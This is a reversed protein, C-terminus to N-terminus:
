FVEKLYNTIIIEKVKERNKRKSMQTVGYSYKYNNVEYKNFGKYLNLIFDNEYHTFLFKGKIGKLINALKYHDEKTFMERYYREAEVYPPDIFFLTNPSDYKKICEEFDLNEICVNQLRDRFELFRKYFSFIHGARRNSTKSYGFSGIKSAFGNTILYIFGYAREVNDVWDNNKYKDLYLKYFERSVITNKLYNQFEKRHYKMCYFINFLDKDLDNYVENLSPAKKFLVWGAGGFVEVYTMKQYNEPFNSIICSSLYYKGGIYSFM